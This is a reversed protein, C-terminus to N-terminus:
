KQLALVGCVDQQDGKQPLHLLARVGPTKGFLSSTAHQYVLVLAFCRCEFSRGASIRESCEATKRPGLFQDSDLRTSKDITFTDVL